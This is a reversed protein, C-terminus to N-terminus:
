LEMDMGCQQEQESTDGCLGQQTHELIDVGGSEARDISHAYYRGAIGSPHHHLGKATM